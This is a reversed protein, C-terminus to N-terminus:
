GQNFKAQIKQCFRELAAQPKHTNTAVSGSAIAELGQELRQSMEGIIRMHDSGGTNRAVGNQGGSPKM